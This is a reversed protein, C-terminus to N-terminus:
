CRKLYKIYNKNVSSIKNRTNKKCDMNIKNLAKKHNREDLENLIKDNRETKSFQSEMKKYTLMYEQNVYNIKQEIDSKNKQYKDKCMEAYCKLNNDITIEYDSITITNLNSDKIFANDSAPYDLYGFASIDKYDYKSYVSILDSSLRKIKHEPLGENHSILIHSFVDMLLCFYAYYIDDIQKILNDYFRCLSNVVNDIFGNNSDKSDKNKYDVLALKLENIKKLKSNDIKYYLDLVKNKNNEIEKIMFNIIIILEDYYNINKLNILFYYYNIISIDFIFTKDVSRYAELSDLKKAIYNNHMKVMDCFKCEDDYLKSYFQNIKDLEYMSEKQKSSVDLVSLKYNISKLYCNKEFLYEKFEFNHNLIDSQCEIEQLELDKCVKIKLDKEKSLGERRKLTIHNKLEKIVSIDETELLKGEDELYSLACEDKIKNLDYSLNNMIQQCRDKYNNEKETSQFEFEKTKQAIERETSTKRNLLEQKEKRNTSLINKIEKESNPFTNVTNFQKSYGEFYQTFLSKYEEKADESCTRIEHSNQHHEQENRIIKAKYSKLSYNGNGIEELYDSVIEDGKLVNKNIAADIYSFYQEYIIKYKELFTKYDM